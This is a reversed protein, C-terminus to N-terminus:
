PKRKVIERFTISVQRELGCAVDRTDVAEARALGKLGEVGFMGEHGLADNNVDCAVATADADLSKPWRWAGRTLDREDLRDALAVLEVGDNAVGGLEPGRADHRDDCLSAHTAGAFSTTVPPPADRDFSRSLTAAALRREDVSWSWEQVHEARM